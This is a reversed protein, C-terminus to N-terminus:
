DEVTKVEEFQAKRPDYSYLRSGNVFLATDSPGPSPQVKAGKELDMTQWTGKVASFAHITRSDYYITFSPGDFQIYPDQGPERLAQESWKGTTNSFAYAHRGIMYVAYNYYM